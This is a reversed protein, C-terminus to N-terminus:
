PDHHQKNTGLQTKQDSVDSISSMQNVERGKRVSRGIKGIYPGTTMTHLKSKSSLYPSVGRRASDLVLRTISLEDEVTM